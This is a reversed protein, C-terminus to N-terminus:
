RYVYKRTQKGLELAKINLTNSFYILKTLLVVTDLM